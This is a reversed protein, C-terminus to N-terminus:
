FPIEPDDDDINELDSIFQTMVYILKKDNIGEGMWADFSVKFTKVKRQVRRLLNDYDVNQTELELGYKEQLWRLAAPFSKKLKEMIFTFVDGGAGCSYCHFLQKKKDVFFTNEECFPCKGVIKEGKKKLKTHETIIEVLSAVKRIQDIAEM